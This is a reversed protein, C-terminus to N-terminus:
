DGIVNAGVHFLDCRINGSKSETLYLRLDIGGLSGQVLGFLHDRVTDGTWCECVHEVGAIIQFLGIVTNTKSLCDQIEAIRHLAFQTIKSDKRVAPWAQTVGEASCFPWVGPPRMGTVTRFPRSPPKRKLGFVGDPILKKDLPKRRSNLADQVVKVELGTCAVRYIAL